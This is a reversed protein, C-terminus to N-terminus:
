VSIRLVSPKVVCIQISGLPLSTSAGATTPFTLRTMVPTSADVTVTKEASTVFYSCADKNGNGIAVTSHMGAEVANYHCQEFVPVYWWGFGHQRRFWQAKREPPLSSPRTLLSSKPLRSLSGCFVVLFMLWLAVETPVWPRLPTPAPLRLLGVNAPVSLVPATPAMTTAMRTLITKISPPEGPLAINLSSTIPTSVPISSTCTM